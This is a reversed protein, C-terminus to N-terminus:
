VVGRVDKLKSIYHERVSKWDVLHLPIQRMIENESTREHRPIFDSKYSPSMVAIDQCLFSLCQEFNSNQMVDPNTGKSSKVFSEAIDLAKELFMQNNDLILTVQWTEENMWGEIPVNM